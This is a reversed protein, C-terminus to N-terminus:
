KSWHSSSSSKGSGKALATKYATTQRKSDITPLPPPQTVLWSPIVRGSKKLKRRALKNQKRLLAGGREVNVRKRRAKGSDQQLVSRMVQADASKPLVADGDDTCDSISKDDGDGDQQAGDADVAVASQKWPPPVVRATAGFKGAQLDGPPPVVRATAWVDATLEDAGGVAQEQVEYGDVTVTPAETGDDAEAVAVKYVVKDKIEDVVKYYVTGDEVIRIVKVHPAAAAGPFDMTDTHDLMSHAQMVDQVKPQWISLESWGWGCGYFNGCPDCTWVWDNDTICECKTDMAAVGCDIAVGKLM